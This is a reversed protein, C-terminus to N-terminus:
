NWWLYNYDVLTIIPFEPVDLSYGSPPADGVSRDPLSTGGNQLDGLALVLPGGHDLQGLRDGVANTGSPEQQVQGPETGVGRHASRGAALRRVGLAALGGPDHPRGRPPLRAVARCRLLGM